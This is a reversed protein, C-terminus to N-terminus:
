YCIPFDERIAKNNCCPCVELGTDNKMDSEKPFFGLKNAKRHVMADQYRAPYQYTKDLLMKAEKINLLFNTAFVMETLNSLM